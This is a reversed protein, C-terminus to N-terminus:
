EAYLLDFVMQPSDQLWWFFPFSPTSPFNVTTVTEIQLSAFPMHYLTKDISYSIPVPFLDGFFCCPFQDAVLLMGEVLM